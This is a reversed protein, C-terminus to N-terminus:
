WAETRRRMAAREQDCSMRHVQQRRQTLQFWKLLHSFKRHGEPIRLGNSKRHHALDCPHGAQEIDEELLIWSQAATLYHIDALPLIGLYM